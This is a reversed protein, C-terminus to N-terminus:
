GNPRSAWKEFASPNHAFTHAAKLLNTLRALDEKQFIEEQPHQLDLFMKLREQWTTLRQMTEEDTLGALEEIHTMDSLRHEWLFERLWDYRNYEDETLGNKIEGLGAWLHSGGVGSFNMSKTETTM